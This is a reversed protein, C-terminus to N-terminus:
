DDIKGDLMDYYDIIDTLDYLDGEILKDFSDRTEDPTSVVDCHNCSKFYKNDDSITYYINSSKNHM